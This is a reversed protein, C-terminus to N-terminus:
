ASEFGRRRNVHFLHVKARTSVEPGGPLTPDQGRRVSALRRRDWIIGQHMLCLRTAPTKMAPEYQLEM